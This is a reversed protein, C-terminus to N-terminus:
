RSNEPVARIFQDTMQVVKEPAEPFPFVRSADFQGRFLQKVFGTTRRGAFVVEEATKIQAKKYRDIRQGHCPEKEWSAASNRM